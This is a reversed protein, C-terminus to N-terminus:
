TLVLLPKGARWYSGDAQYTTKDGAQGVGQFLPGDKVFRSTVKTVIDLQGGSNDRLDVIVARVDHREFERLAQDLQGPLPEPFSYFHLYGVNGDMIQAKLIPAAVQARTLQVETPVGQGRRVQLRVPSGEQGRVLQVVQEIGMGALPSDDVGVLRDGP